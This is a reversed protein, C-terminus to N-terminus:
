LLTINYIINNYNNNYSRRWVCDNKFRWERGRVEPRIHEDATRRLRMLTTDLIIM